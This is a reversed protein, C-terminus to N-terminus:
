IKEKIGNKNEKMQYADYISIFELSSDNNVMDIFRKLNDIYVSNVLKPHGIIAAVQSESKTKRKLRKVQSYLFEAAYADM